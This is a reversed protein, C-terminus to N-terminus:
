LVYLVLTPANAMAMAGEYLSRLIQPDQELRNLIVKSEDSDIFNTIFTLASQRLLTNNSNMLSVINNFLSLNNFVAIWGERSELCINDLLWLLKNKSEPSGNLLISYAVELVYNDM